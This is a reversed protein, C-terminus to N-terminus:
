FMVSESIFSVIEFSVLKIFRKVIVFEVESMIGDKSSVLYWAVYAIINPRIIGKKMAENM